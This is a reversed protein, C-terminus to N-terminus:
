NAEVLAALEEASTDRYRGWDLPGSALALLQRALDREADSAASAGVDAEWASAARVQTPYHPHQAVAGEPLLYLGRGAFFLPISETWPCSNNWCWRKRGPRALQDLEEPEIVL